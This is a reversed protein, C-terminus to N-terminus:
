LNNFSQVKLAEVVYIVAFKRNVEFIVHLNICGIRFVDGGEFVNWTCM